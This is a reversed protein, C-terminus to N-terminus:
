LGTTTEGGSGFVEKFVPGLDRLLQGGDGTFASGHM